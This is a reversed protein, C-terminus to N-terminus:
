EFLIQAILELATDGISRISHGEGAQTLTTDGPLLTTTEGNDDYEAKGSIVYFSEMEGEHVHYGISAGPPLIIKAYLRGKDYLEEPTLLREITVVGDGDRMKELQQTPYSDKRKIM